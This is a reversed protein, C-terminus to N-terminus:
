AARIAERLISERLRSKIAEKLVLDVPRGFLSELYEKLDMYNDFSKQDFEVIFDIDNGDAADDRAHSGFLALERVHLERLRGRQEHITTLIEARTM